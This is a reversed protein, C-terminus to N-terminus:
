SEETRTGEALAAVAQALQRAANQAQKHSNGASGVEVLLGGPCLDQNFRSGRLQLPRTIGPTQRELQTHLKLGLGLNEGYNKHNTGIVVMLQAAAGTETQVTTGIQEGEAADRHLDLVLQISPYEKLYAKIAGRADEYSGNYSPYDHIQRDQITPIGQQNLLKATLAGISLMNYDEDLTRYAATEVYRDNGKTYSETAHTHLILVTPEEQRLNWELPASLLSGIDPEVAGLDTVEVQEAGSFTPLVTLSMAGKEPPPTEVFDPLFAPFSSFRIDGTERQGGNPKPQLFDLSIDMSFLRFVMACLIAMLGIRVTRQHLDM